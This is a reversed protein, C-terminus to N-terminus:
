EALPTIPACSYSSRHGVWPATPAASLPSDVSGGARQADVEGSGCQDAM